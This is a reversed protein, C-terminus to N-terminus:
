KIYFWNEVTASKNSHADRVHTVVKYKGKEFGTFSYTFTLSVETNRNWSSFKLDAFEEQGGLENGKDDELVFDAKFGFEYCGAPVIKEYAFGMPELYLYLPEGSAFNNSQKPEYIGYSNDEGKVFRVNCLLLPVKESFLEVVSHLTKHAKYYEKEGFEDKFRAFPTEFVASQQASLMSVLMIIALVMSAVLKM